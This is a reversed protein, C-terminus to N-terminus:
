QGGAKTDLSRLAALATGLKRCAEAGDWTLSIDDGDTPEGVENHVARATECVRVMANWRVLAETPTQALVVRADNLALVIAEDVPAHEEMIGDGQSAEYHWAKDVAEASPVLTELAARLQAVQAQLTAITADRPDVPASPINLVIVAAESLERWVGELCNGMCEDLTWTSDERAGSASVIRTGFDGVEIYATGDCFKDVHTFYRTTSM